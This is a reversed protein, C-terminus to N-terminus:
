TVRSHVLNRRQIKKGTAEKMLQSITLPFFFFAPWPILALATLIFHLLYNLNELMPHKVAANDTRIDKNTSMLWLIAGCVKRLTFFLKDPFAMGFTNKMYKYIKNRQLCLYIEKYIDEAMICREQVETHALKDDTM